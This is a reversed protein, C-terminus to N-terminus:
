KGIENLWQVSLAEVYEKFTEIEKFTHYTYKPQNELFVINDFSANPSFLYVKKSKRDYLTLSGDAECVFQILNKDSLKEFAGDKCITEYSEKYAGIGKKCESSIFMFNQNNSLSMDPQNYSERIGGGVEELLLKHELCLELENNRKTEIEILWGCSIDDKNTWSYLKYDKENITLPLIRSRSILISLKPFTHQFLESLNTNSTKEGFSIVDSTKLFFVDKKFEIFDLDFERNKQKERKSFM